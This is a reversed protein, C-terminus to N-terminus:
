QWTSSPCFLPYSDLLRSFENVKTSRVDWWESPNNLLDKWSKDIDNDHEESQKSNIDKKSPDM